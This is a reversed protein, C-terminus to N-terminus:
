TIFENATIINEVIYGSDTSSTNITYLDQHEVTKKSIVRPKFWVYEDKLFSSEIVDEDKMIFIGNTDPNRFVGFIHGVKLYLRQIEFALTESLMTIQLADNVTTTGVSDIYGKLFFNIKFIPADQVWEPITKEDDRNGFMKLIQSWTNYCFDSDSINISDNIINSVPILTDDLHKFVENKYELTEQIKGYGVYYGMMYWCESKDMSVVIKETRKEGTKRNVQTKNVTLEPTISKLNIMMGHYDNETLESAKKWISPGFSSVNRETSIDHIHTKERIYWMQNSSCIIPSLRNMLYIEFLTGTYHCRQLSKIAEFTGNQTMIKDDFNINNICKYGMETLIRTRSTLCSITKNSTMEAM